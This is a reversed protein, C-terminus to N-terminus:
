EVLLKTCETQVGSVMRIVYIGKALRDISQLALANQGKAVVCTQEGVREGALNWFSVQVSGAEAASMYLTASSSAPNPGVHLTQAPLAGGAFSVLPSYSTNGNIGVIRLRYTVSAAQPISNDTFNYSGDTPQSLAAVRGISDFRDNGVSREVVFDAADQNGATQWTLEVGGPEETGKFNLLDVPLLILCTTLTIDDIAFDNGGGGPANNRISIPVSTGAGSNFTFSGQVWQGSYTLEGTNYYDMGAIAFAINPKVGPTGSSGGTSPNAGCLPCLNYVWFSLTYETNATLGTVTTSFFSSPAYTGNVALMYGATAGNAAPPNGTGTTSGTHDGIVDWVGFVRDGAAPTTGTYQTPSNNNVIAYNGDSPQGASLNVFTFGTVNPSSTTRNQTSGSGFTGNTESTMYNTPGAGDCPSNTYVGVVITTLTATTPVGAISYSISGVVSFTSGIAGTVQVRYAAMLISQANYFVPTTTGGVLSGGAASTAGTGMYITIASGIVQGQDDGAADTYAGTNTIGGVIVGENTEARLTGAQYATNVPVTSTYTLGTVTTGSPVSIIGRIELIDGNQIAGGAPQSIDVYSGATQVQAFSGPSLLILLTSITLISKM